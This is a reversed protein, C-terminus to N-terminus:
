RFQYNLGVRGINDTLHNLNVTITGGATTISRTGASDSGFDVHLYEARVSWPGAFAWEWGGGVTWGDTINNDHTSAHTVGAVLTNSDISERGYAWGGTFYFLQRDWAYGARGRVTGFYDLKDSITESGTASVLAHTLTDKQGSGQIDAELGFVWPGNQWNYGIQGGGIVGEPKVDNVETVGSATVVTHSHAGWSAGVNGGVYWGTWSYVPAPAPPRAKVAMDAAFAPAGILAAIAATCTAIKNM